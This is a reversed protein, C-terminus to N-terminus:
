GKEAGSNKMKKEGERSEGVWIYAKIGHAAAERDAVCFPAYSDEYTGSLPHHSMINKTIEKTHTSIFETSWPEKM